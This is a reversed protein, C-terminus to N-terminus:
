MVDSRIEFFTNRKTRIAIKRLQFYKRRIIEIRSIIVFGFSVQFFNGVIRYTLSRLYDTYYFKPFNEKESFM